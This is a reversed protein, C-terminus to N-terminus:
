VSGLVGEKYKEMFSVVAFQNLLENALDEKVKCYVKIYNDSFGSILGTAEDYEEFLVKRKEGLNIKIIKESTIEAVRILEASRRKKIDSPIQDKMEAAKTGQRKSYQFVHVKNFGSEEVIKISAQFDEETEGPFGVIIDTTIGYCKDHDRLVKIIEKYGKSDYNRNMKKLIRDSGSQLSLHLHPCLKEYQLLKSVYSANIVTPELSGLRIRFDAPIGNLDKIIDEIGLHKDEIGYLATNIGTIVLEKFGKSILHNAEKLIDEKSRSRVNGRAYPIICYSCFQNCGEQIKIFARTRERYEEIELEEFEKFKMIDSVVRLKGKEEEIENLYDIIKSREKTGLVLNVGQIKEVEEPSTQSYCGMVVIIADKNNNKARRIMQRSKRDSIGTVTCTNIVYVDAKEHFDVIEYGEKKFIESVAQSEYQNVKCGLTYFGVKKM